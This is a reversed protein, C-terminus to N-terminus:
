KAGRMRMEGDLAAGSAAIPRGKLGASREVKRAREAFASETESPQLTVFPHPPPPSLSAPTGVLRVSDIESPPPPESWFADSWGTTDLVLEIARVPLTGPSVKLELADSPQRHPDTNYREGRWITAWDSAEGGEGGVETAARVEVLSGPNFSQYVTVSSPEVATRFLLRVWERDEGERPVPSWARVSSGAKPYVAPRGLLQRASNDSSSFESSVGVVGTPYQEIPRSASAAPARSPAAAPPASAKSSAAAKSSASGLAVKALQKAAADPTTRAEMANATQSNLKAVKAKKERAAAAERDERRDALPNDGADAVVIMATVAEGAM